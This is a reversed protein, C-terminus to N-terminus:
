FLRMLLPFILAHLLILLVYLILYLILPSLDFPGVYPRLQHRIPELLPDTLDWILRVLPTAPSIRLMELLVRALLIIFYLQFLFDILRLLWLGFDAQPNFLWALGGLALTFLAQILANALMLVFFAVILAPDILLQRMRMLPPHGLWRRIPSVIPETVAILFRALGSGSPIRFLPLIFRLFLALELLAFFASVLNIVIRM